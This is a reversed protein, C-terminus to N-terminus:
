QLLMRIDAAFDDVSDNADHLVRQDGNRDILYVTSSHSDDYNDNGRKGPIKQAWVHYAEEVRSIEAPTGTLGVITNGGSFRKVYTALAASTDRQPDVTVFAVQAKAGSGQRGIAAALKALTTPCTDACHTYGFFVAVVTGRRRSLTWPAGADSRLTFDPAPKPPLATGRFHPAPTCGCLIAVVFAALARHAYRRM